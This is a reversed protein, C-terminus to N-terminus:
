KGKKEKRSATGSRPVIEAVGEDVPGGPVDLWHFSHGAKQVKNATLKKKELLEQALAELRNRGVASFEEPLEHRRAYLGNGRGTKTFPHGERAAKAIAAVLADSLKRDDPRATRLKDTRDVLLGNSSRLLTRVRWDAPWNAKVVGCQMIMNAHPEWEVNLAACSKRADAELPNWIAIVTRCGDVIATSGRVAERADAPAEIERSGKRMHHTLIIAAGTDAALQALRGCLFQAAMADKNLDLAVFAQLPDIVVLKLDPIARLQAELSELQPTVEPGNWDGQFLTLPGGADPLPIIRLREPIPKSLEKGLETLRRHVEQRDDEALIVVATGRAIVEAGLWSEGDFGPEGGAVRLALALVLIGKGAGGMAVMSALGRLPILGRVLMERDDPKGEFRALTWEELDIDPRSWPGARPPRVERGPQYANEIVRASDGPDLPAHQGDSDTERFLRRASMRMLEAAIQKPIGVCQLEFGLRLLVKHRGINPKAHTKAAATAIIQMARARVPACTDGNPETSPDPGESTSSSRTSESRLPDEGLAEVFNARSYTRATDLEEIRSLFPENKQHWFGPLRMVRPLDHVSIDGNFRRILAQQFPTFHTLPLDTIRWYAHWRGPSSEVVITPKLPFDRVPEIPAGDLDVFLARVETVNDKTRGNLDTKSVTVFIGAGSRQLATLLHAHEDFDGHFIRALKKKTNKDATKRDCFTQFTFGGSPDLAALYRRAQELDPKLNHM